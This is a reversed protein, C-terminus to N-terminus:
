RSVIGALNRLGRWVRRLPRTFHAFTRYSVPIEAIDIGNRLMLRTIGAANRVPRRAMDARFGENLRARHYIRFGTLPDSLIVQFRLGLAATFVFTGLWSLAYLIPQKGYASRLSSRFQKQSQNRSGFIAGFVGAKSVQAGLLIDALRYEGDGTITVLYDSTGHRLWDSVAEVDSFLGQYHAAAIELHEPMAMRPVPMQNLSLRVKSFQEDWPLELFEQVLYDAAYSRKLLDVYIDVTERSSRATASRSIEFASRVVAYGSHVKPRAPNAFAGRLVQASKYATPVAGETDFALAHERRRGDENFLIHTVVGDRNEPDGAMECVRDVLSAATLSRIDHDTELNLVLVKAPAPSRRIAGAAIRYSPLLSSFQTGPGYVILDAALLAEEAEPSIEVSSALRRLYSQKEELSDGAISRLQEPTLPRELFFLDRIEAESQPGVIASERNLIEGDSKLAVLTRNEGRSVNVLRAQTRFLSALRGVTANFDEKCALYCGAFILNGFSCGALNLEARHERYYAFFHRLCTVIQARLDTDLQGFLLRLDPCLYRTSKPHAVYAMLNAAQAEGAEKALRFELISQLAQQEPSSPDLVHSLNKRFDSPGLMNPIFERLEGTSLGDDYANVLLTLHVEPRRILESIISASGRGGCFLVVRMRSDAAPAAANEAARAGLLNSAAAVRLHGYTMLM